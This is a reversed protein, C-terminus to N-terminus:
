PSTGEREAQRFLAEKENVQIRRFLNLLFSEMDYGTHIWSHFGSLFIGNGSTHVDNPLGKRPLVAVRRGLIHSCSYGCSRYHVGFVPCPTLTSLRGQHHLFRGLFVLFAKLIKEAAQHAHFCVTDWPVDGAQLNNRINLFDNEAKALWAPYNSEPGSM